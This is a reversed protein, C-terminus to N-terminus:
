FTGGVNGYIRASPSHSRPAIRTQDVDAIKNKCGLVRESPRGSAKAIVHVNGPTKAYWTTAANGANRARSNPWTNQFAISGPGDVCVSDGITAITDIAQAARAMRVTRDKEKIPKKSPHRM